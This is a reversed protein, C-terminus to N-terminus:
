SVPASGIASNKLYGIKTNGTKDRFIKVRPDSLIEGRLINNKIEKLAKGNVYLIWEWDTYTQEIISTYLDNIYKLNHTPTILSFKM